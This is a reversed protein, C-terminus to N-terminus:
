KCAHIKVSRNLFTHKWQKNVCVYIIVGFARTISNQLELLGGQAKKLPLAVLYLEWKVQSVGSKLAGDERGGMQYAVTHSNTAQQQCVSSLIIYKVCFQGEHEKPQYVAKFLLTSSFPLWTDKQGSHLAIADTIMKTAWMCSPTVVGCLKNTCLTGIAVAM